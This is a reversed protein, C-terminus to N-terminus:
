ILANIIKLDSKTLNKKIIKEIKRGNGYFAVEVLNITYKEKKRNPKLQTTM